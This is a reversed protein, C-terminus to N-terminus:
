ISLDMTERGTQFALVHYQAIVVHVQFTHAAQCKSSLLVYKTM